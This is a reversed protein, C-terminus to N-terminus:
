KGRWSELSLAHAEMNSFSRTSSVAQSLVTQIEDIIRCGQECGPFQDHRPCSRCPSKVLYGIEFDFCRKYPTPKLTM